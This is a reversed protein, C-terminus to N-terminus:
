QLALGAGTRSRCREVVGVPRSGLMASMRSAATKRRVLRDTLPTLRGTSPPQCKMVQHARHETVSGAKSARRQATEAMATAPWMADVEGSVMLIPGEAREIPIEAARVADRNMLAHEFVPRLVLLQGSVSIGSGEARHM